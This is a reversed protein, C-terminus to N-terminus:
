IKTASTIQIYMAINGGDLNTTVPQNTNTIGASSVTVRYKQNLNNNMAYDSDECDLTTAGTKKDCIMVTCVVAHGPNKSGDINVSGGILALIKSGIIPCNNKLPNEGPISPSPVSGSGDGFTEKYGQNEMGEKKCELADNFERESRIGNKVTNYGKNRMCAIIDLRLIDGNIDSFSDRDLKALGDVVCNNYIQPEQPTSPSNVEQTELDTETPNLENICGIILEKQPSFMIQYTFQFIIVLSVVLVLVLVRFYNRKGFKDM